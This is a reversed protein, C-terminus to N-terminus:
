LGEEPRLKDVPHILDDVEALERLFIEFVDGPDHQGLQLGNHGVFM